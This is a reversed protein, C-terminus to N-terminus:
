KKNDTNINGKESWYITINVKLRLVEFPHRFKNFDDDLKRLSKIDSLRSEANLFHRKASRETLEKAVSLIQLDSHM